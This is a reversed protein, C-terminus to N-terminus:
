PVQAGIMAETPPCIKIFYVIIKYALNGRKEELHFICSKEIM